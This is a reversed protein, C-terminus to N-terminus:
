IQEIGGGYDSIKKRKILNDELCRSIKAMLEVKKSYPIAETREKEEGGNRINQNKIHNAFVTNLM